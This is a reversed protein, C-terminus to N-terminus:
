HNCPNTTSQIDTDWPDQKPTLPCHLQPHVPLSKGPSSFAPGSPLARLPGTWGEITPRSSQSLFFSIEAVHPSFSSEEYSPQTGESLCLTWIPQSLKNPCRILISGPCCRGNFTKQAPGVPSIGCPLGPFTAPSVDRRVRFLGVGQILASSLPHIFPRICLCANPPQLKLTTTESYFVIM